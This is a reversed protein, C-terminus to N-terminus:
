KVVIKVFNESFINNLECIVKNNLNVNYNKNLKFSKKEHLSYFFVDVSGRNKILLSKVKEFENNIIDMNKVLIYLKFRESEEVKFIDNVLIKVDDGEVKLTGKVFVINDNELFSSFRSYISPFVVCEVSDYKDELDFFCMSSNSKTIIKKFNTIVGGLIVGEIYVNEREGDGFINSKSFTDKLDMIKNTCIKNFFEVYEDTPHGSIYFGLVEKEFLLDKNQSDELIEYNYNKVEFESNDILNFFSVQGDLNKKLDFSIGDIIREFNNLLVERPVNFVDLAGSKIICEISKRNISNKVCVRFFEQEDKFKGHKERFGVIKDCASDGLNKIAYLGFFIDEGKVVFKKYSNNVCPSHIKINLGESFKMYESVKDTNNIVSNLLSCVYESKYYKILYATEYSVVAYAAAHSKNFAYSAFQSMQDFIKNAINEDIGNKVCGLINEDENGYVFNKREKEMEAHKKKAMVRRVLDSRGLSYGSLKQVIEMVQEQYVIIGYTVDLIKELQKTLYKIEKPYNKNRIYNPIQEMPGPRYLSIGAIIDEFSTPKLEKMFNTMGISEFQFIGCTDGQSFMNFIEPDSFSIKDIDIYKKKNESIMNICGNIVTLTRLGLFDMKLLGLEEINAMPFQTVMINESKQVPVLDMLNYPSIIIGAAHISTHRPLGELKKSIDILKKIRLDNRYLADLDHNYLLALGITINLMSPIMKAVKDVEAYSYNMARGVDRICAKAAMTGFTIIHSVNKEGYKNKVYEIVEGRRENCFDSDIDPMSIREPNLFREFILGYEIPDIKTINLVYAVMSGAVSGRGPGTPIMAENSFKIFDWVILFYDSFGMSNILNLEYNLRKLLKKRREDEYSEISNLLEIFQEDNLIDIKEFRILDDKFEEYKSITGFYCLRRLYEFSSLKVDTIYKPFISQGFNYEFNCKDRIKITNKLADKNMNFLSYMEDPSKLYFEEGEYRMRNSQEVTSATQICILVDHAESDSKNIYHVDNTAVLEVSFEKSFEILYNNVKSQAEIGHNQLELYFDEGFIDKYTSVLKKASSIDNRLIYKSIGGSLCASLAIIGESHERLFEIDIRPKYYFGELFATSVIKILNKYGVENKVLLVLHSTFNDNDYNKNHMSKNAVYIECGIIPKIGYQKCVKYFEICGYMVGHDTIAISDMGLDKVKEVLDRIKCSSDLLSFETHVHLHVFDNM